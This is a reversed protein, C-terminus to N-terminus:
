EAELNNYTTRIIKDYTKMDNKRMANFLAEKEAQIFENFDVIYEKDSTKLVGNSNDQCWVKFADENTSGADSYTKVVDLIVDYRQKVMRLDGAGSSTTRSYSKVARKDKFIYETAAKVAKDSIENRALVFALVGIYNANMARKMVAAPLEAMVNMMREVLKCAKDVNELIVNENVALARGLEKANNKTQDCKSAALLSNMAILEHHHAKKFTANTDADRFFPHSAVKLIANNIAESLKSREKVATALAMGSNLRGFYMKMTAIDMDYVTGITIKYDLIMKKEEATLNKNDSMLMLSTTRQLGDLLYKKGDVDAVIIMGCPLGLRVSDMLAERQNKTWVYLRQCLPLEIKNDKYRKLLARVTITESSWDHQKMEIENEDDLEEAAASLAEMVEDAEMVQEEDASDIEDNIIDEADLMNLSIVNDMEYTDEHNMNAITKMTRQEKEIYLKNNKYTKRYQPFLSKIEDLTNTGAICEAGGDYEVARVITDLLRVREMSNNKFNNWNHVDMTKM